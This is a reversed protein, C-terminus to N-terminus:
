NLCLYFQKFPGKCPVSEPNETRPTGDSYNALIDLFFGMFDLSIQNMPAPPPPYIEWLGALLKVFMLSCETESVFQSVLDLDLRQEQSLQLDSGTEVM